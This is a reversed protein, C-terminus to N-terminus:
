TIVTPETRGTFEEVRGVGVAIEVLGALAEEAKVRYDVADYREVYVRITAGSSGTGSARYVIRSGDEFVIFIGQKLSVSADVPDTYAFDGCDAVTFEEKGSTYKKGVLTAKAEVLFRLSTM